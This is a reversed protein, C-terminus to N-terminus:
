GVARMIIAAVERRTIETSAKLYVGEPKSSGEIWGKYVATYVYPVAWEAVEEIDKFNKEKVFADIAEKNATYYEEVDYDEHVFVANGFVKLFEARTANRTGNFNYTKEAGEEVTNEIGDILGIRTAAKVYNVAWDATKDQFKYEVGAYFDKNAGTLRVMLAALENRTLNKLGKFTNNGVGNMFGAEGIAKVYEKAWGNEELDTFTYTVNSVIEVVYEEKVGDKELVAYLRTVNSEPTIYLANELLITKNVDAYLRVGKPEYGRLADIQFYMKKGVDSGNVTIVGRGNYPEEAPDTLSVGGTVSVKELDAAQQYLTGDTVTDFQTATTTVTLSVPESVTQGDEATVLIYVVTTAKQLKLYSDTIEQTCAADAYLKYTAYPSVNANVYFAAASISVTYGSVTYQAGSVGLLECEASKERTLKVTYTKVTGNQATIEVTYSVDENGTYNVTYLSGNVAPEAGTNTEYIKVTSEASFTMRMAVETQEKPLTVTVTQEDTEVIGGAVTISKLEAKDNALRELCFYYVDTPEGEPDADFSWNQLAFLCRGTDLFIVEYDYGAGSAAEPLVTGNWDVIKSIGTFGNVIDFGILTESYPISYCVIGNEDESTEYTGEVVKIVNREIRLAYDKTVTGDESALTFIFDNLHKTLPLNVVASETHIAATAIKEGKEGNENQYVFVSNKANKKVSLVYETNQTSVGDIKTLTDESLAMDGVLFEDTYLVDTAPEEAVAAVSVMSLTMVVALVACLWKKANQVM